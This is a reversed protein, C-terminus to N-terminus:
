FFNLRARIQSFLAMYVHLIYAVMAGLRGFRLSIDSRGVSLGFLMVLRHPTTKHYRTVNNLSCRRPKSSPDCCSQKGAKRSQKPGDQTYFQTEFGPKNPDVPQCPSNAMVFLSAGFLTVPISM